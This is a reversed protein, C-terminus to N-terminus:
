QSDEMVIRASVVGPEPRRGIEASYIQVGASTTLTELWGLLVSFAVSDLSVSLAMGQPDLRRIDIAAARASATVRERLPLTPEALPSSLTDPLQAAVAWLIDIKRLQAFSDARSSLSPAIVVSWGASLCILAAAGACLARERTSLKRIM